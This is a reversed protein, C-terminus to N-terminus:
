KKFLQKPLILGKWITERDTGGINFRRLFYDPISFIEYQGKGLEEKVVDLLDAVSSFNFGGMELDEVVILDNDSFDKNFAGEEIWLDLPVRRTGNDLVLPEEISLDRYSRGALVSIRSPIVEDPIDLKELSKQRLAKLYRESAIENFFVWIVEGTDYHELIVDVSLPGVKIDTKRARYDKWHSSYEIFNLFRLKLAFPSLLKKSVFIDYLIKRADESLDDIDGMKKKITVQNEHKENYEKLINRIWKKTFSPYVYKLKETSQAIGHNKDMVAVM